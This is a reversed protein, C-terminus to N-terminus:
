RLDGGDSNRKALRAYRLSNIDDTQKQEFRGREIKFKKLELEELRDIIRKENLLVLHQEQSEKLERHAEAVRLEQSSIKYALSEEYKRSFEVMMFNLEAQYRNRNTRIQAKEEFLTRLQRQESELINRAHILEREKEELKLERLRQVARLKFEFKKM